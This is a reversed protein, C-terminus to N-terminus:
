YPPYTTPPPSVNYESRLFTVLDILEQVTLVENYIEMKSSDGEAGISKHKDAIKHSPNIISTVLEGYSKIRTVEGGLPVNLYEPSGDFEIDAISHCSNCNFDVFTAKGTELDGPPLAFGRGEPNCGVFVVLCFFGVLLSLLIDNSLQRVM